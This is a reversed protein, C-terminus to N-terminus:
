IWFEKNVQDTGFREFWIMAFSIIESLFTLIISLIIFVIKSTKNSFLGDFVETSLQESKLDQITSNFSFNMKM